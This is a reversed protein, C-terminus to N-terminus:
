DMQETLARAQRAYFASAEADAKKAFSTSVATAASAGARFADLVVNRQAVDDPLPALLAGHQWRGAVFGSNTQLVGISPSGRDLLGYFREPETGEVVNVMIGSGVAFGRQCDGLWAVQGGVWVKPRQFRCDPEGDSRPESPEQASPPKPGAGATSVAEPSATAARPAEAPAVVAVKAAGSDCALCGAIALFTLRM